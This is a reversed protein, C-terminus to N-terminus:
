WRVWRCFWLCVAMTSKETKLRSLMKQATSVPTM